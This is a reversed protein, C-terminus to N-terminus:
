QAARHLVSAPLWSVETESPHPPQNALAGHSREQYGGDDDASPLHGRHGSACQNLCCPLRRWCWSPVSLVSVGVWTTQSLAEWKGLWRRLALFLSMVWLGRWSGAVARDVAFANIDAFHDILEEFRRM